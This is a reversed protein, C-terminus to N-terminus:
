ILPLFNLWFIVALDNKFYTTDVIGHILIYLMIGLIIFKVANDDKKAEVGFHGEEKDFLYGKPNKAHPYIERFWVVLLAIFGSFGIIGSYLWFTLYLNHPHPVAWELYPPYYKQYELYKEQFNGPGIGWLWNDRLIKGASQWIMVRSALSSRSNYGVLDNFKVSRSQFISFIFLIFIILFTRRSFRGKRIIETIVLSSIVALWAAYSFTFYFVALIVLGSTLVFIKLELSYSQAKHKASQTLMILAPALYMALYNPSNFFGELRGDFTVEGLLLYGLALISILFASVYLARFINLIKDKKIIQSISFVFVLPFLFWGKIIGSGVAYNKNIILSMIMGLFILSISVIYKKKKMIISVYRSADRRVIWGIFIISILIELVNTSIGLVTFKILYVPLLIITLYVLNELNFWKKM